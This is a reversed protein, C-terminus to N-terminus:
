WRKMPLISFSYSGFNFGGIIALFSRNKKNVMFFIDHEDRIDVFLLRALFVNDNKRCHVVVYSNCVIVSCLWIHMNHIIMSLSSHIDNM